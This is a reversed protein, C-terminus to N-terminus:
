RRTFNNKRRVDTVGRNKLGFFQVAWEIAGENAIRFKPPLDLSRNEQRLLRLWKMVEKKVLYNLDKHAGCTCFSDIEDFNKLGEKM